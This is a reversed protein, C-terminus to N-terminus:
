RYERNIYEEKEEKLTSDTPSKMKLLKLRNEYDKKEEATMVYSMVPNHERTAIYETKRPKGDEGNIKKQELKWKEILNTIMIIVNNNDWEECYWKPESKTKEYRRSSNFCPKFRRTIGVKLMFREDTLDGYQADEILSLMESKNSKCMEDLIQEIDSLRQTLQNSLFSVNRKVDRYLNYRDHKEFYVIRDLLINKLRIACCAIENKMEVAERYSKNRYLELRCLIKEACCNYLTELSNKVNHEDDRIDTMNSNKPYVTSFLLAAGVELEELFKETDSYSENGKSALFKTLARRGEIANSLLEQENVGYTAEIMDLVFVIDDYGFANKNFGRYSRDTKNVTRYSAKEVFLEEYVKSYGMFLENKRDFSDIGKKNKYLVHYLEHCIIGFVVKPNEEFSKTSILIEKEISDYVALSSEHDKIDGNVITIKRLNAKLNLIDQNIRRKSFEYQKARRLLAEVIIDKYISDIHMNEIQRAISKRAIFSKKCNRKM